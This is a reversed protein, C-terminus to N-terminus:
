VHCEELQVNKARLPVYNGLFVELHDSLASMDISEHHYSKCVFYLVTQIVLELLMVKLLFLFCILGIVLWIALSPAVGFVVFNEFVVQIVGYCLGIVIFLGISVRLKGKILCRSKVMAKWGYIDELVSVVSALNWVIKIYLFGAIYLILLVVFITIGIPSFGLAVAWLVFVGVAVLNYVLAVAFSWIFTIVLRKWVRPVVSMVKKFTIQKATYICAITYVVAATSLLSLILFVTLYAAKFLWFGAWDASVMHSLKERSTTTNSHRNLDHQDEIVKHFLLHSVQFHFLFVFSLPLILTLTIQSFIKRWSFVIKFSHKFIGFFGLFQLEQQERDM